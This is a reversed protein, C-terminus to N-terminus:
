GIFEAIPIERLLYCDPKSDKLKIFEKVVEPVEIM